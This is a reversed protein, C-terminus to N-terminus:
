ALVPLVLHTLLSALRLLLPPLGTATYASAGAAPAAILAALEAERASRRAAAAHASDTRAEHEFDSYAPFVAIHYHPPRRELTADIVGRNELALLHTSLWVRCSRQGSVRLDVAMGTPHVSLPSANRPQKAAPRMLSTVVLREGCSAQYQRALREVFAQVVPRAFPYGVNALRYDGNGTLEVLRGDDVFRRVQTPTRLFSFDEQRAVRNQRLMSARSGNLSVDVEATAMAPAALLALALLLSCTRTTVNM